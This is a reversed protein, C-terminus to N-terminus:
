SLRRLRRDNHPMLSLSLGVQHHAEPGFGCVGCWGEGDDGYPHAAVHCRLDDLLAGPPWGHERPATRRDIGEAIDVAALVDLLGTTRHLPDHVTIWGVAHLERRILRCFRRPIEQDGHAQHSARITRTMNGLRDPM